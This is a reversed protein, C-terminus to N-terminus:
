EAVELPYRGYREVAEAFADLHEQPYPMSQDPACFYGGQQGLQRIRLRVEGQIRDAPGDMVIASSVGGQLAMRGQTILRIRNLDNATAQVPNLVDIGLELFMDLVSLVNGCSHFGILVGHKQYLEVLRRYEPLLFESVIRPGLLPGTQTGLDDGLSAFEVGSALYYRAIGLQFDMIHHLVERVFEPETLFYMMLNEMGVLMYAKEWLTDRHSGGLYQDGGTFARAMREIKSCIREDNPDPWRYDQLAEIRALPNGKPLGMVGEQIKHWVTGWIDVWETGVPSDDGGEGSYMEHNVGEYLLQYVTMGM